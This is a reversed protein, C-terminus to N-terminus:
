LEVGVRDPLVRYRHLHRDPGRVWLERAAEGMDPIGRLGAIERACAHEIAPAAFLPYRVRRVRVLTSDGSRIALFDCPLSPDQVPIVLYGAAAAHQMAEAIAAEPRRGRTM